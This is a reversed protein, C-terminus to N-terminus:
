RFEDCSCKDIDVIVSLALRYGLYVSDSKVFKPQDHVTHIVKSFDGALGHITVSPIKRELFSSSDSNGLEINAAAFPMHMRHAIEGVRVTLKKSSLNELVQPKGLGLSDLNIMACYQGLQVKDIAAAMARSGILGKEEKGFAVFILTKEMPLDRVSRYVHAMAVIGSWNDIAGCGLTAIDYHAGIVILEESKGQKRLVLNDVKNFKEIAIDSAQAGMKEFLIRVAGLREGNQCNVSIADEGVEEPTSISLRGSKVDLNLSTPAAILSLLWLSGTSLLLSIM